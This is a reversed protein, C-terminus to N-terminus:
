KEPSHVLLSEKVGQEFFDVALRQLVRVTHPFDEYKETYAGKVSVGKGEPRRLIM